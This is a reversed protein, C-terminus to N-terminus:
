INMEALPNKVDVDVGIEEGELLQVYGHDEGHFALIAVVRDDDEADLKYINIDAFMDGSECYFPVLDKQFEFGKDEDHITEVFDVSDEDSDFDDVVNFMWSWDEDEMLSEVTSTVYDEPQKLYMASKGSSDSLLLINHNPEEEDGNVRELTLLRGEQCSGENLRNFEQIEIVEFNFDQETKAVITEALLRNDLYLSEGVRLNQLFNHM